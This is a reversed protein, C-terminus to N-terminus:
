RRKSAHSRRRNAVVGRGLGEGPAVKEIVTGGETIRAISGTPLADLQEVTDISPRYHQEAAAALKKTIVSDVDTVLHYRLIETIRETLDTM